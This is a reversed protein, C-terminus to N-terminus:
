RCGFWAHFGEISTAETRVDFRLLGLISLSYVSSFSSGLVFVQVREKLNGLFKRVDPSNAEYDEPNEYRELKFESSTTKEVSSNLVRVDYQPISGFRSAIASAGNGIGIISIM